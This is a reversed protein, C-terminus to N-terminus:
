LSHNFSVDETDFNSKYSTCFSHIQSCVTLCFLDCASHTSIFHWTFKSSQNQETFVHLCFEITQQNGDQLIEWQHKFIFMQRWIKLFEHLHLIERIKIIHLHEDM